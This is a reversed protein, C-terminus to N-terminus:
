KILIRLSLSNVKKNSIQIDSIELISYSWKLKTNTDSDDINDHFLKLTQPIQLKNQENLHPKSSPCTYFSRKTDISLLFRSSLNNKM